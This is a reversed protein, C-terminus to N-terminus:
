IVVNFFWYVTIDKNGEKEDEFLRAASSLFGLKVFVSGIKCDKIIINYDYFFIFSIM